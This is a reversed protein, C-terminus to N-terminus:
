LSMVCSVMGGSNCGELVVMSYLSDRGAGAGGM